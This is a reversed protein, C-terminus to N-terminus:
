SINTGCIRVTPPGKGKLRQLNATFSALALRNNYIRSLRLVSKNHYLQKICNPFEYGNDELIIKGKCCCTSFLKEVTYEFHFHYVKCFPCVLNMEGLSYITIINEDFDQKIIADNHIEEYFRRQLIKYHKLKMCNSKQIKNELEASSIDDYDYMEVKIKKSVDTVNDNELKRKNMCIKM